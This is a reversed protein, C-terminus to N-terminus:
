ESIQFRFTRSQGGRVEVTKGALEHRPFILDTGRDVKEDDIYVNGSMAEMRAVSRSIGFEDEIVGVLDVVDEKQDAQGAAPQEPADADREVDPTTGEPM